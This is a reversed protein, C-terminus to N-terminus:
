RPAAVEVKPMRAKAIAAAAVSAPQEPDERDLAITKEFAFRAEGALGYQEVILGVVLWDSGILRDDGRTSLTELLLKRAEEPHGSAASVAAHTNLLVPDRSNSLQSARRGAEYSDADALGLVLGDWAVGNNDHASGQGNAVREKALKWAGRVDGRYHLVSILARRATEEGPLDKLRALALSQADDGEPGFRGGGRGLNWTQGVHCLSTDRVDIGVSCV